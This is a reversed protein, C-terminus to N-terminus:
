ALVRLAKPLLTVRLPGRGAYEGDVDLLFRDADAENHLRIDLASARLHHVDPRTLHEGKYLASSLGLVPLRREGGIAVVDFLGDDLSAGPAVHMGGGFWRGLCVALNRTQMRVPRREGEHEVECELRGLAGVALAKLSAVFYAAQGGLARGSEGVYKDVLGGMGFSLVNVFFRSAPRGEVDTFEVRGADVARPENRALAALYADLRHEIGLSRRYDGGTGQHILGVAAGSQAELVGSAVESFTGDGGVAVIRRRGELAAERAIRRGDGPCTTLRADIPGLAREVPRLLRDFIRGTRGGCSAPNVVLLPRDSASM